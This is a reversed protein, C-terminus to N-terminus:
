SILVLYPRTENASLRPAPNREPTYKATGLETGSAVHRSGIDDDQAGADDAGRDRQMEDLATKRDRQDIAAPRALARGVAIGADDFAVRNKRRRKRRMPVLQQADRELTRRNGIVMQRKQRLDRRPKQREAGGRLRRSQDLGRPQHPRQKRPRHALVFRQAGFGARRM